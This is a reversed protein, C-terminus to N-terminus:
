TIPQVTGPFHFRTNRMEPKPNPSPHMVFARLVRDRTFLVFSAFFWRWLLAAALCASGGFVNARLANGSALEANM